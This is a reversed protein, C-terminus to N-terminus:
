GKCDSCEKYIYDRTLPLCNIAKKSFLVQHLDIMGNNFSAACSCLYLEWMRVFREDFLATVQDVNNEFNDYWHLLTKAYHCRLSEVDLAYFDYAYSTQIIEPLTPLTGGPFIYKRIWPDGSNEKRGSIFHLLFLGQPNLVECINEMFLSYNPRGVHEIMGVSVARDFTRGSKKLDRYDMLKVELYDQLGEAEIRQNCEKAQEESLTIGLGHVKYKKAAEILLYGWGCGIDVLSMGEEINLKALIHHAKNVQAQFLGDNENKFYACSYSMTEDLWLKYFDNGIDYHSCVEKKQNHAKTNTHILKHLAKKDVAFKDLQSMIINLAAFLNGELEIDKNMYAEGLALSTSRLLDAKSIEKNIHVIFEPKGSGIAFGDKGMFDIVFPVEGFQQLFKKLLDKDSTFIM